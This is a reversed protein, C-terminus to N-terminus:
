LDKLKSYKILYILLFAGLLGISSLLIEKNYLIFINNNYGYSVIQLSIVSFCREIASLSIYQVKDEPSHIKSAYNDCFTIADIGNKRFYEHDSSDKFLYNFNIQKSSCITALSKVLETDKSDSEGAMICLPINDDRGIM